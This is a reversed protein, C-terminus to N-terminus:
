KILKDLLKNIRKINNWESPWNYVPSSDATNIDTNDDNRPTTPDPTPSPSPNPSPKPSPSPSPIPM